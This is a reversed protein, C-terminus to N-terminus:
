QHSMKKILIFGKNYGMSDSLIYGEMRMGLMVGWRRVIFRGECTSDLPQAQLKAQTIEGTEPSWSPANGNEKQGQNFLVWSSRYKNNSGM